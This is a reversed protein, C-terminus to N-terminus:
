EKKNKLLDILDKNKTIIESCFLKCSQEQGPTCNKLVGFECGIRFSDIVIIDHPKLKKSSSAAELWKGIFIGSLGITIAIILNIKKNM